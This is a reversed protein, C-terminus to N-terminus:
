RVLKSLKKFVSVRVMPVAYYAIRRDGRILATLGALHDDHGHSLVIAEISGPDIGMVSLNPLLTAGRGTDFLIRGARCDILCAFGHEGLLPLPKGVSNECVITLRLSVDSSM